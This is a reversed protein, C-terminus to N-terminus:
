EECGPGDDRRLIDLELLRNLVDNYKKMALVSFFSIM